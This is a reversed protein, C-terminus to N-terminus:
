KEEKQNTKQNTQSEWQKWQKREKTLLKELRDSRERSKKERQSIINLNKQLNAIKDDKTNPYLLPEIKHRLYSAFWSHKEKKNMDTEAVQQMIHASYLSLLQIPALEDTDKVLEQQWKHFTNM